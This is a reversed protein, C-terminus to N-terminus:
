AAYRKLWNITMDRFTCLTDAHNGDGARATQLIFNGQYNIQALAAFVADFNASGAGLPVTTGGLVRDKVHVNVIRPGYEVFEEHTNFGLAASNGIDYNIGFLTSDLRAIFRALEKPVYDSEFVVKLGHGALFDAQSELFAVLNDEQDEDELRGNDVLPVVLLTIGVAACGKAIEVFDYELARREAGQAKWLPAQMFCDGTLSPIGLEHRQCLARIEAQGTETLLPNEYLREQDLTWEILHISIQQALPFEDKWNEWPFAQIRGNIVPSLRGQMFGIRSTM